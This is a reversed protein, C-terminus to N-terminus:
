RLQHSLSVNHAVVSAYVSNLAVLTVLGALKHHKSIQSAALITSAAIGAKLAIFAAKNPVVGALVPNGEAGGREIVAYTSRVDLAHLVASSVCLAVITRSLASPAQTDHLTVPTPETVAAPAAQAAPAPTFLTAPLNVRLAAAETATSQALAPRAWAFSTGAVLAAIILSRHAM